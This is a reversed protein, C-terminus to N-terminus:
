IELPAGNEVPAADEDSDDFLSDIHQARREAPTQEIVTRAKKAAPEQISELFPLPRQNQALRTYCKKCIERIRQQQVPTLLYEFRSFVELVKLDTIGEYENLVGEYWFTLAARGYYVIPEGSAEHLEETEYCPIFYELSKTFHRHFPSINASKMDPSYGTTESM